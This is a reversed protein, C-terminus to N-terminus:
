LRELIDFNSVIALFIISVIKKKLHWMESRNLCSSSFQDNAETALSNCQLLDILSADEIYLPTPLFVPKCSALGIRIPTPFIGKSFNVKV